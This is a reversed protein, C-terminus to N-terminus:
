RINTSYKENESACRMTACARCYENMSILYFIDIGNVVHGSPTVTPVLCRTEPSTIPTLVLCHQQKDWLMQHFLGSITDASQMCVAAVYECRPAHSTFLINSTFSFFFKVYLLILYVILFSHQELYSDSDHSFTCYHIM